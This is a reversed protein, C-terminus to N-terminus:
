KNVLSQIKKKLDGISTSKHLIELDINKAKEKFGNDNRINTYIIIPIDPRVRINRRGERIDKALCLGTHRGDNTVRKNYPPNLGYGYAMISDLLIVSVREAESSKLFDLAQEIENLTVVDFGSEGLFREIIEFHDIDDDVCLVLPKRDSNNKGM